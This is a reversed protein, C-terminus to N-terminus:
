KYVKKKPEYQPQLSTTSKYVLTTQGKSNVLMWNYMHELENYM